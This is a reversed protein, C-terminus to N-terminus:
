RTALRLLNLAEYAAIRRIRDRDGRYLRAVATTGERGALAVHVTGV